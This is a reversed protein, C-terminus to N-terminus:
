QADHGDDETDYKNMKDFLYDLEGEQYTRQHFNLANPTVAPRSATQQAAAAPRGAEYHKKALEATTLDLKKWDTLLKTIYGTPLAKGRACEAAYLIVDMNALKLWDELQGVDTATVKKVLGCKEFVLAVQERLSEERELHSEVDEMTIQGREIFKTLAEDLRQMDPAKMKEALERAVRLITEPAFGAALYKRYKEQEVTSPSVNRMGLEEHLQKIADDVRRKEELTDAMEAGSTVGSLRKLIGDLYGFSPNRANVTETCATMVAAPSLKWEELWKRAMNVEDMTPKRRLSFRNLVKECTKWAESECMARENALEETVIEEEAWKLALKDLSRFQCKEGHGAIYSEVMILVVEEPLGLEEV